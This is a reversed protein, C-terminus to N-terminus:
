QAIASCYNLVSPDNRAVMTAQGGHVLEFSGPGKLIYPEGDVQAHIKEDNDLTFKFHYSQIGQSASRTGMKMGTLHAAGDASVVEVLGDDIKQPYEKKKWVEMGAGYSPINSIIVVKSNKGMEVDVEEGDEDFGSISVRSSLDKYQSGFMTKLTETGYKMMNTTRSSYKEPNAERAEHFATAIQADDGYSFYNCMVVDDVAHDGEYIKADDIPRLIWQDLKVEVGDKIGELTSDVIGDVYSGGWGLARSMDNGTGLPIVGVTVNQLGLQHVVSLVWKVTGDGGAAIATIKRQPDQAFMQLGKAPGGDQGLDFVQIKGLLQITRELVKAGMGGGSKKNTFVIVPQIKPDLLHLKEPTAHTIPVRIKSLDGGDCQDDKVSPYCKKCFARHCHLCRNNKTEHDAMSKKCGSCKPNKISYAVNDAIWHHNVEDSGDDNDHGVHDKKCQFTVDDVCKLHVM